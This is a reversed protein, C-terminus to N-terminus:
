CVQDTTEAAARATGGGDRDFPLLPMIAGGVAVKGVFSLFTRRGLRHAMQRSGREAVHDIAGFLKDILKSM